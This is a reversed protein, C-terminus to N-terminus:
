KFWNMDARRLYLTTSDQSIILQEILSLIRQKRNSVDGKGEIAKPVLIPYLVFEISFYKTNQAVFLKM